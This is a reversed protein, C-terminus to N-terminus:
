FQPKGYLAHSQLPVGIQMMRPHDKWHEVQKLAGEIDDPVVRITGRFRHGFTDHELWRRALMENHAAALATGLHRDPMLGRTMPHLVALDIGREDFLQRATFDPDSGPYIGDPTAWEVYEGGPAGYWDMEYDPFGRSKYPEHMFSRLDDNNGFFVHVSADVIPGM